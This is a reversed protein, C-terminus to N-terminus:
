IQHKKIFSYSPILREIEKLTANFGSRDKEKEQIKAIACLISIKEEKHVTKNQGYIKHLYYLQPSTSLDPAIYSLVPDKFNTIHFPDLRKRLMGIAAETNGALYTCEAYRLLLSTSVGGLGNTKKLGSLLQSKGQAYSGWAVYCDCLSRYVMGTKVASRTKTKTTLVNLLQFAKNIDKNYMSAHAMGWQTCYDKFSQSREQYISVLLDWRDAEKLHKRAAGLIQTEDPNDRLIQKSLTTMALLDYQSIYYRHLQMNLKKIALKMEQARREIEDPDFLIKRKKTIIQDIKTQIQTPYVALSRSNYQSIQDPNKRALWEQLYSQTLQRERDNMDPLDNEAFASRSKLRKTKARKGTRACLTDLMGFYLFKKESNQEIAQEYLRISLQILDSENEIQCVRNEMKKNGTAIERYTKALRDYFDVREPYKNIAKKYYPLIEDTRNLKALLNKYCDYVSIHAPLDTLITIYIQEAEAFQKKHFLTRAEEFQKILVNESTQVPNEKAKPQAFLHSPYNGVLTLGAGCLMSKLFKRRTFTKM